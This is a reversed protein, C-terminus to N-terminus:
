YIYLQQIIVVNCFKFRYSYIIIQRFEIKQLKESLKKAIVKESRIKRSIPEAVFSYRTVDAFKELPILIICKQLIAGRERPTQSPQPKHNHCERSTERVM